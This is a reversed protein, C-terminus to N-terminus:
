SPRRSLRSRSEALYSKVLEKVEDLDKLGQWRDLITGREDVVVVTPISVVGYAKAVKDGEDFLSTVALPNRELYARLKQKKGFTNIALVSFNEDKFTEQLRELQPLEEICPPCWIAWFALFLVDGEYENVTRAQGDLTQGLTEPAPKAKDADHFKSHVWKGPWEWWGVEAETPLAVMTIIITIIITLLARM